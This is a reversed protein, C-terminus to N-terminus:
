CPVKDFDLKSNHKKSVKKRTPWANISKKWEVYDEWKEFCMFGGDVSHVVFSWPCKKRTTTRNGGVVHEVKGTMSREWQSGM